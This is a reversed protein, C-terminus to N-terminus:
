SEAHRTFEEWTLSSSAARVHAVRPHIPAQMLLVGAYRKGISHAFERAIRQVDYGAEPHLRQSGPNKPPNTLQERYLILRKRDSSAVTTPRHFPSKPQSPSSIAPTVPRPPEYTLPSRSTHTIHRSPHSPPTQTPKLIRYKNPPQARSTAQPSPWKPTTAQANTDFIPVALIRLQRPTTASGAQHYSM